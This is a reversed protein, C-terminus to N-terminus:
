IMRCTIEGHSLHRQDGFEDVLVLRGDLDIGQAVGKLNMQHGIVQISKGKLYDLATWSEYFSKFGYELLQNFHIYAETIIQGILDNRDWQTETLDFLSCWARDPLPDDCTKSNVNLGIGIIMASVPTNIVEILCGCLKSDKWYIDNPWKISLHERIGLNFLVKVVALSIVLSLTSLSSLNAQTPIGISLYINKGYPSHWHRGQRGKGATQGEACCVQIGGTLCQHKLFQNTSDIIDFVHISIPDKIPGIANRILSKNLPLTNM